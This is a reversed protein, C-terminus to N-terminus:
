MVLRVTLSARFLPAIGATDLTSAPVLTAAASTTFARAGTAAPLVTAAAGSTTAVRAAAAAAGAANFAFHAPLKVCFLLSIERKLACLPYLLIGPRVPMGSLLPM